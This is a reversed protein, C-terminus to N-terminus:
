AFRSDKLIMDRKSWFDHVEQWLLNLNEPNLCHKAPLSSIAPGPENVSYLFAEANPEDVGVVYSPIPSSAMRNVDRQSVVVKLRPNSKSSTVGLTTAKVQVYFIYSEFGVLEVVYDFTPFKDGLFRPRFFPDDRGDCLQTILLHFL